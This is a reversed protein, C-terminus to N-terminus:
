SLLSAVSSSAWRTTADPVTLHAQYFRDTSTWPYHPNGLLLGRGSASMDKGVALGNSGFGQRALMALRATLFSTDPKRPAARAVGPATIGPDRAGAVIEKAFVQGSAHLAKEALVLYMDDVTIPRVWKANNCAAPYNGVKDKLYRNYGAVYGELIDRPEKTGAAYGARLQEIDIYGKFFFDSDQNKLDMFGSAAGYEDGVRQTARAEPGFFLSREGRVTLLADAFMCLNDEAYAYGLGYGLGRFDNARVHAVGHTTRSVEASLTVAPPAPPAPTSTDSHRSCASLALTLTVLVFTM